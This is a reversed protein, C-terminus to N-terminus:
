FEAARLGSTSSASRRENSVSQASVPVFARDGRRRRVSRKAQKRVLGVRRRALRDDVIVALLLLLLLLLVDM